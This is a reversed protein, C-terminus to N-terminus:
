FAISLGAEIGHFLISNSVAISPPAGNLVGVIGGYQNAAMAVGDLYLLRYGIFVSAHRTFNRAGRIGLEGVFSTKGDQARITAAQSPIGTSTIGASNDAANGYVGAKLWGDLKWAEDGTLYSAQAGAQVGYLRNTVNIILDQSAGTNFNGYHVGQSDLLDVFRFGGLVTFWDTLKERLNYEMSRVRTSVSLSSTTIPFSVEDVVTPPLEDIVRQDFWDDVSFWDFEFATTDSFDVLLNVETGGAWSPDTEATTLLTSGTATETLVVNSQASSRNLFLANVRITFMPAPEAASRM